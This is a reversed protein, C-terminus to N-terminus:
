MMESMNRIKHVLERMVHLAFYPTQQVMFIFQSEDVPVLVCDTSAVASASRTSASILAMEGFIEGPKITNISKGHLQITINGELVVYMMDREDGENFITEGASYTRKNEASEFLGVLDM